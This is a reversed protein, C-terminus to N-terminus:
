FNKINWWLNNRISNSVSNCHYAFMALVIGLLNWPITETSGAFSDFYNPIDVNKINGSVSLSLYKIIWGVVVNYFMLVGALGVAAGICSIVFGARSTFNDRNKM